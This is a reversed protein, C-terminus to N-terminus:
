NNFEHEYVYKGIKEGQKIGDMTSKRFNWGCNIKTIANDTVAQSIKTYNIPSTPSKSSYVSININDSLIKKLIEGAAGGLISYGSPYEPVRSTPLYPTWKNNTLPHGNRKKNIASIPRWHYYSYIDQFMVIAADAMATHILAFIQATEWADKNKTKIIETAFNNWLIPHNLYSWYDIINQENPSRSDYYAKTGKEEVEDCDTNFQNSNPYIPGHQGFPNNPGTMIVFPDVTGYETLFKNINGLAPPMNYYDARFQGDEMGDPPSATIIDITNSGDNIRNKIIKRSALVGLYWGNDKGPGSINNMIEEALDDIQQHYSTANFGGFPGRIAAPLRNIYEVIDDIAWHLAEFAAGTVAADPNGSAYSAASVAANFDDRTLNYGPYLSIDNLVTGIPANTNSPKPPKEGFKLYKPDISNLADHVAIQTIAFRRTDHGLNTHWNLLEAAKENWALVIGSSQWSRTSIEKEPRLEDRECATFFCAFLMFIGFSLKLRNSCVSRNQLAPNGISSNKM